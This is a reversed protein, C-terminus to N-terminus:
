MQCRKCKARTSNTKRVSRLTPLNQLHLRTRPCGHGNSVQGPMLIQVALVRRILLLPLLKLLMRPLSLRLTKLPLRPTPNARKGPSETSKASLDRSHQPKTLAWGNGSCLDASTFARRRRRAGARLSLARRKHGSSVVLQLFNTEQCGEDCFRKLCPFGTLRIVLAARWLKNGHLCQIMQRAWQTWVALLFHTARSTKARSWLGRHLRYLRKQVVRPCIRELVDTQSSMACRALFLALSSSSMCNQLNRLSGQLFCINQKPSSHLFARM